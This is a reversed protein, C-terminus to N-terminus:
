SVKWTLKVLILGLLDAFFYNPEEVRCFQKASTLLGSGMQPLFM